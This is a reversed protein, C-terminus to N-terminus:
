SGLSRGRTSKVSAAFGLLTMADVRRSSATVCQGDEESLFSNQEAYSGVGDTLKWNGSPARLKTRIEPLLGVPLFDPANTQV